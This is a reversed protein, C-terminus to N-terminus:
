EPSQLHQSLKELEKSLEAMRITDEQSLEDGATFRNYLGTYEFLKKKMTAHFRAEFAAVDSRM